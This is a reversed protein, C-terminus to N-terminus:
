RVLYVYFDPHRLIHGIRGLISLIFPGCLIGSPAICPRDPRTCRVPGCLLRSPAICSRDPRPYIVDIQDGYFDQHRLLHGIRGLISLM